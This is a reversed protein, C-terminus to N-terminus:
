ATIINVPSKLGCLWILWSTDSPRSGTLTTGFAERSKAYKISEELAIAAITHAEIALTLRESVFNNMIGRFGDGEKGILNEAPVRCDEFSLEATDSSHWGMKRIKKAVKFGPTASDILLLSIGKSGMGGTRVATTIFNARCGSTIFTKAGNVIYYDGDRVARTRLNAVDSGADPETIGLAAIRDGALVPVLFKQKQEETGLNLVPPIAITHSFLGSFLGASGCRLFEEIFAVFMFKDCPTGGYEEPFQLGLYGAEACKKYMEAPFLEKDEWEEIHHMIHKEVFKRVSNRFIQHEENFYDDYM